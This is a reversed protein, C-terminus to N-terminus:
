VGAKERILEVAGACLMKSESDCTPPGLYLLVLPSKFRGDALKMPYSLLIFRPSNDLLEEALE